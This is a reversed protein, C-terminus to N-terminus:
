PMPEGYMEIDEPSMGEYIVDGDQPMSEASEIPQAQARYRAQM